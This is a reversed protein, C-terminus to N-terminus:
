ARRAEREWGQLFEVALQGLARDYGGELLALVPIGLRAIQRGMEAYDEVDLEFGGLVDLRYTDFGLSLVVLEARWEDKVVRLAEDLKTFYDERTSHPRLPLPLNRNFGSGEGSGRETSSGTYHPYEGAGHISIYAPSRRDYFITQTGNGHHVDLDLIVVQPRPESGNLPPPLQSLIYETVIAATNLYCYGGALSHCAHHGPPRVLCFTLSHNLSPSALLMDAGKLAVNVAAMASKFTHKSVGSSMDFAYYGLQAFVDRPPALSGGDISRGQTHLIRAHPFCEPLVCASEDHADVIGADEFRKYISRLHTVYVASHVSEPIVPWTSEDESLSVKYIRDAFTTERLADLIGTIRDPSEHAPILKNALLEVSHHLLTQPDHLIRLPMRPSPQSPQQPSNSEM